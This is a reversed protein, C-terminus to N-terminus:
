VGPNWTKMRVVIGVEIMRYVITVITTTSINTTTPTTPLAGHVHPNNIIRRKKSIKRTICV